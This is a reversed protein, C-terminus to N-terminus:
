KTEIRIRHISRLVNSRLSCNNFDETKNSIFFSATHGDLLQFCELLSFNHCINRTWLLDSTVPPLGVSLNPTPLLDVFTCVTVVVTVTIHFAKHTFRNTQVVNKFRGLVNLHDEGRSCHFDKLHGWLYPSVSTKTHKHQWCWHGETHNVPLCVRSVVDKTILKLCKEFSM